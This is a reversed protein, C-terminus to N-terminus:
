GVGIGDGQLRNLEQHPLLPHSQLAVVFGFSVIPAVDPPPADAPSALVLVQHTGQPTAASLTAATERIMSSEAM